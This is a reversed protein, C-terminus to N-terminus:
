GGATGEAMGAALRLAAILSEPRATGKGALGLATGHDPSTRIFPLGLTVNVGGHFDLAKVPILAQDHYMCLVADYTERMEPIFATDAPLPGAIHLGEARLRGIAPIIVDIEERGMSGNEGAHPNLGTIALRPRAIGFKQRLAGAVIRAQRVIVDGTLQRPVEQLPIHVTLPVARLGDGVLMMVDSAEYGARRTLHALYDTHGQHRFGAAYLAEKQIPGTVMAAAEASLCAAAAEEICALVWPANEPSFSGLKVPGRLPRHLVPLGQAFCKSSDALAAVSIVNAQLRINDALRKLHDIDCLLAFAMSQENRLAQWAKVAIEPGIGGPEGPTLIIPRRLNM